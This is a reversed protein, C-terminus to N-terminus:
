GGGVAPFFAVKDGDQLATDLDAHRSNVFCVKVEQEGVGLRSLLRRPTDGPELPYAQSNEPQHKALTAYLKLQIHMEEGSSFRSSVSMKDLRWGPLCCVEFGPLSIRYHHLFMGRDLDTESYIRDGLVPHGAHALHARIQHRAGKLITIRVLSLGTGPLFAMPLVYSWRLAAARKGERVRVKRRHATDLAQQLCLRTEMRGRVLALYRKQVRGQEQLEQYAERAKNDEALLILGSTDRDLRNLLLPSQGPLLDELMDELGPEGRLGPSQTHLGSPKFLALYGGRRAVVQVQEQLDSAPKSAPGAMQLGLYSVQDGACLRRGKVGQLGNVQVQLEQWRGRVRRLSGLEAVQALFRDLRSGSWDEPVRLVLRCETYRSHEM